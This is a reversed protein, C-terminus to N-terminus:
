NRGLVLHLFLPFNSWRSTPDPIGVEVLKDITFGADTCASTTEGLPRHLGAFEVTVGDRTVNNSYRRPRMYPETLVFPEDAPGGHATPFSGGSNMPHIVAAVMKGGPELVRHAEAMVPPLNDVDHLVMFAVILDAHGDEYPMNEADAVVTKPADPHDLAAAVMGPSSDFAEVAHGRAALDRGVRGEGCGMDVTLRGPAPVSEFFRQGHFTWYSDHGPTRAWGAWTPAITEWRDKLTEQATDMLKMTASPDNRDVM